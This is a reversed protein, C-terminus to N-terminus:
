SRQWLPSVHLGPIVAEAKKGPTLSAFGVIGWGSLALSRQASHDIIEQSCVLSDLHLSGLHQQYELRWQLGWVNFIFDIWFIVM